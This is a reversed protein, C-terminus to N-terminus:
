EGAHQTGVHRQLSFVRTFAMPCHPCQHPKEGSHTLIHLKLSEPRSFYVDCEGCKHRGCHKTEHISLLEANKCIKRCKKCRLIPTTPIQLIIDNNM